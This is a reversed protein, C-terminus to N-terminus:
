KAEEGISVVDRVLGDLTVIRTPKTGTPPLVWGRVEIPKEDRGGVSGVIATAKGFSGGGPDGMGHSLLFAATEIVDPAVTTRPPAWPKALLDEIQAFTTRAPEGALLLLLVLL